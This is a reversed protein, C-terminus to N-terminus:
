KVDKSPAPLDHVDFKLQEPLLADGWNGTASQNCHISRGQPKLWMELPSVGNKVRFLYTGSSEEGPLMESIKPASPFSKDIGVSGIFSSYTLSDKYELGYTTKLLAVFSTCAPNKAANKVNVFVAVYHHDGKEEASVPPPPPGNPDTPKPPVYPRGRREEVTDIATVTLILGGFHATHKDKEKCDSSPALLLLFVIAIPKSMSKAPIRDSGGLSPRGQLWCTVAEVSAVM